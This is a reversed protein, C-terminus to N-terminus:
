FNHAGHSGLSIMWQVYFQWIDEDTDGMDYTGRALQLRLRSFHSPAFDLMGALRCSSGFTENAGSPYESESTLGIQEWRLGVRWRPLIGYVAQLYYGDQRDIRDGGTFAPVLDHQEVRLDKERYMYEAQLIFDGQGHERAADYKYVLDAGYFRGHGDLWHDETGDENGDHAEQHNGQAGFLGLQLGHPEPLNPALKM